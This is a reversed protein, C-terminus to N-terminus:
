KIVHDPVIKLIVTFSGSCSTVQLINLLIESKCFILCFEQVVFSM